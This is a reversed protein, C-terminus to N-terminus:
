PRSVKIEVTFNGPAGSVAPPTALVKMAVYLGRDSSHLLIIDDVMLSSLRTSATASSNEYAAIMQTRNNEDLGEYLTLADEGRNLKLRAVNRVDWANIAAQWASAFASFGTGDMAFMNGRSGAGLAYCMDIDAGVPTPVNAELFTQVYLFDVYAADLYGDSTFTLTNRKMQNLDMSVPDTYMNEMAHEHPRYVSRITVPIDRNVGELMGTYQDRAVFVKQVNGEGDTYQVEDGLYNEPFLAASSSVVAMADTFGVSHTYTRERLTSIYRPGFISSLLEMELSRNGQDDMTFVQFVYDREELNDLIVSTSDVQRNLSIVVSDSTNYKVVMKTAAPDKPTLLGILARQNGPKVWISDPKGIYTREIVLDKYYHDMKTCSGLSLLLVGLASGVIRIFKRTKMNMHRLVSRALPVM